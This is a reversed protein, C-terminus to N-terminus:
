LKKIRQSKKFRFKQINLILCEQYGPIPKLSSLNRNMLKTIKLITKSATQTKILKKWLNSKRVPVHVGRTNGITFTTTGSALGFLVPSCSDSPASGFTSNELSPLKRMDMSANQKKDLKKM